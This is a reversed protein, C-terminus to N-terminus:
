RGAGEARTPQPRHNECFVSGGLPVVCGCSGFEILTVRALRRCIKWVPQICTSSSVFVKKRRKRPSPSAVRSRVRTSDLNLLKRQRALYSRYEVAGRRGLAMGPQTKRIRTKGKRIQVKVTELDNERERPIPAYRSPHEIRARAVALMAATFRRPVGHAARYHEIQAKSLHKITWLPLGVRDRNFKLILEAMARGARKAIRVADRRSKPLLRRFQAPTANQKTVSWGM